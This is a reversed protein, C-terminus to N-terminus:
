CGSSENPTRLSQLQYWQIGATSQGLEQAKLIAAAKARVFNGGYNKENFAAMVSGDRDNVVEYDSTQENYFIYGGAVDILEDPLEIKEEGAFALLEEMTECAAAKAKQEDTLSDWLEDITAKLTDDM